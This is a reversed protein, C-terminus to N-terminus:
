FFSLLFFVVFFFKFPFVCLFIVKWICLHLSRNVAKVSCLVLYWLILMFFYLFFDGFVALSQCWPGFDQNFVIKLFFFFFLLLPKNKVSDKTRYTRCTKNVCETLLLFLILTMSTTEKPFFLLLVPGVRPPILFGPKVNERSHSMPVPAIIM